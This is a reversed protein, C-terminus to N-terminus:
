TAPEITVQSEKRFQYSYELSAELRSTKESAVESPKPVKLKCAQPPSKKGILTIDQSKFDAVTWCDSIDGVGELKAVVKDWKMSELFGSGKNEVYLSVPMAARAATFVPQRVNKDPEIYAVIPGENKQVVSTKERFTGQEQQRQGEEANVFYIETQSSTDYKYTVSVKLKCSSIPVKVKAPDPTLIWKIEKVELPLLKLDKCGVGEKAELSTCSSPRTVETKGFVNCTDYLNVTVPIEKREGLNQVYTVLSIEQNAKVSQPFVSQDKIVVVDNEYQSQVGSGGFSPLGPISCGSVLVVFILPIGLILKNM